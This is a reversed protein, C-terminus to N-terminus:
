AWREPTSDLFQLEGVEHPNYSNVPCVKGKTM